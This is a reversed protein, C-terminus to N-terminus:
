SESWLSRSLASWWGRSQCRCVWVLDPSRQTGTAAGGLSPPLAPSPSIKKAHLTKRQGRENSFLGGERGARATKQQPTGLVFAACFHFVQVDKVVVREIPVPIEKIVIREVPVEQTIINEVVREVPIPVEKIVLTEIPKEVEKIM